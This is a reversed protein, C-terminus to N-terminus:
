LLECLDNIDITDLLAVIHANFDRGLLVIGGLIQVELNDVALNQFLSESEHKSSIPAVYVVCVFLDPAAGKSVRLWLYFDHNGEKWELLNPNLHNHFYAAVGGSYKIM